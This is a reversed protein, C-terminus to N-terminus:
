YSEQYTQRSDTNAYMLKGHDDQEEEEEEEEGIREEHAKLRGVIDEFSTTNLNLVQGLAAIIHICRKRPLTKQFKKVMKPEDIVKGLVISKSSIESVKGVFMDITDSEKMKIRDFESMLTQLRAEKVRDAGVHRAKIADWM